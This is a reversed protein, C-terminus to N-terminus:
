RFPSLFDRSTIVSRWDSNEFVMPVLAALGECRDLCDLAWLEDVFCYVPVLRVM